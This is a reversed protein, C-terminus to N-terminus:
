QTKVQSGIKDPVIGAQLATPSMDKSDPQYATVM